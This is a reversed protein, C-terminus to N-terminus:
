RHTWTPGTPQALPHASDQLPPMLLVGGRVQGQLAAMVVLHGAAVAAVAAVAEVVRDRGDAMVTLANPSVAVVPEEALTTNAHIHLSSICM